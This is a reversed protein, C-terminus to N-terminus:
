LRFEIIYVCVIEFFPTIFKDILRLTDDEEEVSFIIGFILVGVVEEHSHKCLPFPTASFEDAFLRIILQDSSKEIHNFTCFKTCFEIVEHSDSLYEIVKEVVSFIFFLEM